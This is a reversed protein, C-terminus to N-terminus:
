EAEGGEVAQKLDALAKELEKITADKRHIVLSQSLRETTLNGMEVSQQRILENQFNVADKLQEESMNELNM